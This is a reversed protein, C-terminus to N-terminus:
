KQGVGYSLMPCTYPLSAESLRGDATFGWDVLGERVRRASGKPFQRRAPGQLV